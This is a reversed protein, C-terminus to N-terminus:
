AYRTEEILTYDADQWTYNDIDDLSQAQPEDFDNQVEYTKTGDHYRTVLYAIDHGAYPHYVTYLSEEVFGNNKHDILKRGSIVHQQLIETFEDGDIDAISGCDLDSVIGTIDFDIRDEQPIYDLVEAALDM